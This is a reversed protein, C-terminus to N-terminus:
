LNGKMIWASILQVFISTMWISIKERLNRRITKEKRMIHAVSLFHKEKFSTIAGWLEIRIGSVSVIESMKVSTAM